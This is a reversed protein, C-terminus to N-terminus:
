DLWFINFIKDVDAIIRDWQAAIIDYYNKDKKLYNTATLTNDYRFEIM